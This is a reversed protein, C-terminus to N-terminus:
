PFGSPRTPCSSRLCTNLLHLRKLLLFLPSVVAIPPFMSVALILAMLAKRWAFELRALAFACLSGIVLCVVTTLSAVLFSNRLYIAFPIKEFVKRYERALSYPHVEAPTALHAQRSSLLAALREVGLVRRDIIAEVRAPESASDVAFRLVGAQTTMWTSLQTLRQAREQRLIARKAESNEPSLARKAESNEPSLARKAESNEPSLARKAESNEPSLARESPSLPEHPARLELAASVVDCHLSQPVLSPFGSQFLEGPAKLSTLVMWAFPFLLALVAAVTLVGWTVEVRRSRM